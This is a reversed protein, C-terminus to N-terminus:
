GLNGVASIFAGAVLSNESTEKESTNKLMFKSLHRGGNADSFLSGCASVKRWIFDKGLWFHWVWDNFMIITIHGGLAPSAILVFIRFSLGQTFSKLFLCPAKPLKLLVVKTRCCESGDAKWWRAALVRQLVRLECVLWFAASQLTQVSPNDDAKIRRGFCHMQPVCMSM